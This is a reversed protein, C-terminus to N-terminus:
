MGEKAKEGPEVSTPSTLQSVGVAWIVAAVQGEPEGPWEQCFTAQPLDPMAWLPISRAALTRAAAQASKISFGSFAGDETLFIEANEPMACHLSLERSDMGSQEGMRERVSASLQTKIHMARLIALKAKLYVSPEASVVIVDSSAFADSLASSVQAMSGCLRFDCRGLTMLSSRIKDAASQVTEAGSNNLAIFSLNM